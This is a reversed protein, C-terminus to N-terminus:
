AEPKEQKKLWTIYDKKFKEVFGLMARMMEPNSFMRAAQDWAEEDKAYYHVSMMADQIGKSLRINGSEHYHKAVINLAEELVDKPYPLFSEPITPGFVSDLLFHCPWYWEKWVRFIERAEIITMNLREEQRERHLDARRHRPGPAM